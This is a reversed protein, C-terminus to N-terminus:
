LLSFVIFFGHLLIPGMQQMELIGYYNGWWVQFYSFSYGLMDCEWGWIMMDLEIIYM